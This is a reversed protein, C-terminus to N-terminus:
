NISHLWAHQYEIVLEGLSCARDVINMAPATEDHSCAERDQASARASACQASAYKEYIYLM